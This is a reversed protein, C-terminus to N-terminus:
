ARISWTQTTGLYYQRAALIYNDRTRPKDWMFQAVAPNNQIYNSVNADTVWPWTHYFVIAEWWNWDTYNDYLYKLYACSAIIQHEPNHRELNDWPIDYMPAIRSKIDSWTWDLIQWLWIATSSSPSAKPDWNSWEKIFLQLVVNSPVNLENSYKRIQEDYEQFNKWPWSILEEYSAIDSANEIPAELQQSNVQAELEEGSSEKKWGFIWWLFWWIWWASFFNSLKKSFKDFMDWFKSFIWDWFISGLFGNDSEKESSETKSDSKDRQWKLEELEAQSSIIIQETEDKVRDLFDDIYENELVEQLNNKELKSKFTQIYEESRKEEYLDKVENALDKLWNSIREMDLWDFFDAWFTKELFNKASDFDQFKESTWQSEVQELTENTM